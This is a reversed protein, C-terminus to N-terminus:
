SPMWVYQHVDTVHEYGLKLYVPYGLESAHLISSHCGELRGLRMLHATVASGVGQGRAAELTGVNYVGMVGDIPLGAACGVAVGDVRAILQIAGELGTWVEVFLRAMEAPLGFAEAFVRNAELWEAPTECQEIVVRGDPEPLSVLALDAHMGPTPGASVLGRHEVLAAVAEVHTLPGTWWQFPQGNAFLVDLAERVRRAETGPAFRPAVAGSGVPLPVDSVYLVVDDDPMRHLWPPAAQSYMTVYHEEVMAARPDGAM